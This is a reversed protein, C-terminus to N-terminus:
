RPRVYDLPNVRASTNSSGQRIEFHLHNGTSDGSSGVYGIVEGATVNKSGSFAHRSMHAYITRSGDLHDVFVYNGYSTHWAAHATGGAAALIPTGYPAPIDVGGHGEAYGYIPHIRYGFNSSIYTYGPLPWKYGKVTFANNVLLKVAGSCDFVAVRFYYNTGQPSGELKNFIIYPDVERLDFTLSNPYRTQVQSTANNHTDFVGVVIKTIPLNSSVTGSLGYSQGVKLTAPSYTGSSISFRSASAKKLNDAHIYGTKVVGNMKYAVEHWKAARITWFTRSVRLYTDAPLRAIITGSKTSTPSTRLPVNGKTTIYYSGDGTMLDIKDVSTVCAAFTPLSFNSVITLLLFITVFIHATKKMTNNGKKIIDNIDIKCVNYKNM